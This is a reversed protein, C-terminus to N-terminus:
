RRWWPFFDNQYPNAVRGGGTQAYCRGLATPSSRSGQSSSRGSHPEIRSCALFFFTSLISNFGFNQVRGAKCESLQHKMNSLLTTSWDYISPRMCEVVYFMLPWSAQHLSALGAIRGLTLLIAKLGLVQTANTPVQSGVKETDLYYYVVIYENITLGGGLGGRSRLNVVEGRRSLGNIFYIDEVEITLSMGDIHFFKSDLDM